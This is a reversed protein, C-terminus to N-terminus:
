VIRSTSCFKRKASLTASLNQTISCPRMTSVIGTSSSSPRLASSCSCRPTHVPYGGAHLLRPLSVSHLASYRQPNSQRNREAGHRRRRFYRAIHDLDADQGVHGAEIGVDVAGSRDDGRLH